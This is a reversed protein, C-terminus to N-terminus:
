NIATLMSEAVERTTGTFASWTIMDPLWKVEITFKNPDDPVNQLTALDKQDRTVPPIAALTFLKTSYTLRHRNAWQSDSFHLIILASPFIVLDELYRSLWAPFLIEPADSCIYKILPLASMEIIIIHSVARVDCLIKQLNQLNVHIPNSFIVCNGAEWLNGM